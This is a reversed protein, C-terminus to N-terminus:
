YSRCMGKFPWHESAKVAEIMEVVYAPRENNRWLPMGGRWVYDLVERFGPRDFVYEGLHILEKQPDFRVVMDEASAYQKLLSEVAERVEFGEPKQKFDEAESPFPFLRYVAPIFGPHDYGQMALHLNGIDKPDHIVYIPVKEEAPPGEKAWRTVWACFDSAFFFYNNLLLCDTDINFFGFAVVGHSLTRHGLPM